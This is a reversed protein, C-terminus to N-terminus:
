PTKLWGKQSWSEKFRPEPWVLEPKFDNWEVPWIRGSRDPNSWGFEMERGCGGCSVSFEVGDNKLEIRELDTKWVTSDNDHNLFCRGCNLRFDEDIERRDMLNNRKALKWSHNPDLQGYDEYLREVYFDRLVAMGDPSQGCGCPLVKRYKEVTKYLIAVV